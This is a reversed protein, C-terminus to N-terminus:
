LVAGGSLPDSPQLYSKLISRKTKPDKAPKESRKLKPKPFLHRVDRSFLEAYRVQVLDIDLRVGNGSKGDRDTRLSKILMRDFDGLLDSVVYFERAEYMARKLEAYVNEVRQLRQELPQWTRVVATQTVERTLPWGAISTPLQAAPPTAIIPQRLRVPLKNSYNRGDLHSLATRTPANTIYTTLKLKVTEPRVFDVLPAGLEIPYETIQVAHEPAEHEVADFDVTYTVQHDDLWQMHTVVM